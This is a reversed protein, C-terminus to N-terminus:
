REWRARDATDRGTPEIWRRGFAGEERKWFVADTKLRDMLYDAALFAERRHDSAVAVLVIVEGPQIAGCRHIVRAASVDFRRLADRHIERISAATMRPHWDLVLRDLPEGAKTRPRMVGLCSVIAGAGTASQRFAALLADADFPVSALATDNSATEIRDVM